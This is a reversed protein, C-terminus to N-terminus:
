QVAVAEFKCVDRCAGCKTCKAPDIAQPKKKEGSIAEAPCHKNCLLCGKCKAADIRYTILAKCVGAPCRHDRIHAEYEDKFYRLTSLVPNAATTGLACMSADTVAQGLEELMPVHEERGKGACIDSVLHYMVDLGERCATCKGCSEDRLFNLFYRAVDVMCTNEDMVIMGGSGMMSGYKTLEDFDVQLDLLSAPLCGGSPGGTQVAKFQKGDPIGGGIDFVMKRLTIGMPVEVLGTNRIKGVLSFIKTGKSKETGMGAFWAAGRNLILPVNAWTEVNNLNSPKEWLGSEVTHTHKARPEGPHGEISAMLATSEGCVFAGGGRSIKIDFNFGTGLINPGLLGYERAQALAAKLTVIALPYENRIYVYGQDSGIAYAGLIMGEVISHPDAEILGRDMFAGPDGEDANCLVYKPYGHAARCSRWKRGTPYGGGGRGRLGSKEITDIIEEPKLSTLAKALASYGGDAIYERIDFPDIEGSRALVVRSQQNYFPIEDTLPCRKGTVPDVFLLEEVVKGAVVTEDLIRAVDTRKVREYFIGKPRIIVIPGRECFGVCGTQKIALRGDLSLKAAGAKFTEYLAESKAGPCGTGSCITVIVRQPDRTAVLESRLSELETPSHLPTM